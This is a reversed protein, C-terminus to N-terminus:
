RRNARRRRRTTAAHPQRHVRPVPRRRFQLHWWRLGRALLRAVADDVGEHGTGPIYGTGSFSLTRVGSGDDANIIWTDAVTGVQTPTFVVTETLSQGPLLTTGESLQTTAVFPGTAPPKSKTITLNASGTNSVTFSESSTSGLPVSGYDFTTPTISLVGPATSTGTLAVVVDGGTSDLELSSSDSGVLTPAFTVNLVVENGPQLQAGVAPAGSVSFPAGPMDVASITLPELGM